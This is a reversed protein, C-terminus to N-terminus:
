ESRFDQMQTKDLAQDDNMTWAKTDTGDWLTMQRWVVLDSQNVDAKNNLEQHTPGVPTIVGPFPEADDVVIEM